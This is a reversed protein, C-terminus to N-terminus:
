AGTGSDPADPDGASAGASPGAAPEASSGAAPAASTQASPEASSEDASSTARQKIDKLSEFLAQWARSLSASVPLYGPIAGPEAARDGLAALAENGAKVLVPDAAELTIRDGTVHIVMRRRGAEEPLEDSTGTVDIDRLAERAHGLNVGLLTLARAAASEPDALAALLLHHSGVPQAGALRAAESLTTDAAPTANLLAQERSHRAGEGALVLEAIGASRARRWRRAPPSEPGPPPLLDLVATRIAPLEAHRRLVKVGVGEDKSGREGETLIGLLLHETGIYDHNLQLAERLALELTKKARPTFPIRGTPEKSGMGILKVVEHRAEELSMGLGTLAQSALGGQEGLLGLLIHETGIYNHNLQTAEEQSLVVVRRARTTFREFM